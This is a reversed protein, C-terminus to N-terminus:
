HKLSDGVYLVVPRNGFSAPPNLKTTGNTLKGADIYKGSFPQFWKAKLSKSIGSLQLTFPASVDQYAVYEKGANALCYGKSVLSDAPELLWYKTKTFFDSFHKLYTYGPPTDNVRIIDWATHTYYYANYGGAMQIQWYFKAVAEPSHVRNYTKDTAGKPGYEYGSEVNMIPWKYQIRQDLTTAHLHASQEQHSRFDIVGNYYGKDYTAIDTHVTLLRDYPDAARIFKLRDIKYEISKEYNAEKALDWVINPYAAYRAIIWRFYRDDEPSENKMWNVEKNYVKFYIHAVIGRKYMADIVRDYHQWYAINYRTFDPNQNNGEWACLAPPGYDTEETKGKRWRTDYSYANILIFNFGYSALKDLFPNVTPLQDSGPDLAWLWNAEYGNPFWRTGDEYIFHYKNKPDVLLGGHIGSNKNKTCVLQAQQNNLCSLDSRTKISWKGKKTASFRIKWKNNGDYFGPITFKIGDPGTIDASFQVIFPNTSDANCTFEFDRPEWRPLKIESRQATLINVCQTQLLLVVLLRVFFSAIDIRHNM